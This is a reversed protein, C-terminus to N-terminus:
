SADGAVRAMSIFPEWRGSEPDLEECTSFRYMAGDHPLVESTVIRFGDSEHEYTTTM